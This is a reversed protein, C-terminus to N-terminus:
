MDWWPVGATSGVHLVPTFAVDPDRCPQLAAFDSWGGITTFKWSKLRQLTVQAWRNSNEYHQFAAYGPNTPNLQDRSAGMDVVCVGFSFFREGNPKILWSIGEHQQISFPANTAAQVPLLSLAAIGAALFVTQM